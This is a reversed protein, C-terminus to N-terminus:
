NFCLGFMDILGFSGFSSLLNHSISSYMRFFKTMFLTIKVCKEYSAQKVLIKKKFQKLPQAFTRISNHPFRNIFFRFLDNSNFFYEICKTIFGISLAGKTFNHEQSCKSIMWIDNLQVAYVPKIYKTM